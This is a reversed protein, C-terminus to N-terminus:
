ILSHSFCTGIDSCVGYSIEKTKKFTCLKTFYSSFRCCMYNPESHDFNKYQLGPFHKRYPKFKFSLFTNYFKLHMQYYEKSGEFQKTRESCIHLNSKIFVAKRNFTLKKNEQFLNSRDICYIKEGKQGETQCQCLRSM